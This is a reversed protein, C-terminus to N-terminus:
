FVLKMGEISREGCAQASSPPTPTMYDFNQMKAKRETKSNSRWRGKTDKIERRM